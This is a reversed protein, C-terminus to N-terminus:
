ISCKLFKNLNTHTGLKIRFLKTDCNRINPDLTAYIRSTRIFFSNHRIITKCVNSFIKYKDGRTNTQKCEFSKKCNIIAEGHLFKQFLILDSKLRRLELSETNAIHLLEKYTPTPTLPNQAFLKPNCKKYIIRLFDRQVKEIKNIDKLLFPNFVNTAFELIPRSYVNFLNVFIHMNQSKVSKIIAFSTQRAKRTIIDIHANWKLNPSFHVGLDRINKV